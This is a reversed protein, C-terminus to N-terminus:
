EGNTLSLKWSFRLFRNLVNKLINGGKENLKATKAIKYLAEERNQKLNRRWKTKLKQWKKLIEEMKKLIEEM